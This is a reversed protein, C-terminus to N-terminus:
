IITHNVGEVISPSHDSYSCNIIKVAFEPLDGHPDRAAIEIILYSGASEGM